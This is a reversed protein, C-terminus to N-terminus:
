GPAPWSSKAPDVKAPSGRSCNDAKDPRVQAAAARAGPPDNARLTACELFVTHGSPLLECRVQLSAAGPSEHEGLKGGALLALLTQRLGDVPHPLTRSARRAHAAAAKELLETSLAPLDVPGAAADPETM